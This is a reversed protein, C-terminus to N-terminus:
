ESFFFLCVFLVFGTNQVRWIQTYETENTHKSLM